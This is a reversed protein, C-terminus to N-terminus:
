NEENWSKIVIQNAATDYQVIEIGGPRVYFRRKCCRMKEANRPKSLDVALERDCRPCRWHIKLAASSRATKM